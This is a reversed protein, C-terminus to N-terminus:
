GFVICAIQTPAAVAATMVITASGAGVTVGRLVAGSTDIQQPTCVVASTATIFSNTVNVTTQGAAINVIFSPKNVTTDGTPFPSTNKDFDIRGSFFSPSKALSYIFYRNAAGADISTDAYIAYSNTIGGPYIWNEFALGYANTITHGTRMLYQGRLLYTSPVTATGGLSSTITFDGAIGTQTIGGNHTVGVVSRIGRLLSTGTGASGSGITAAFEGATGSSIQREVNLSVTSGTMANSGGSDTNNAISIIQGYYTNGTGTGEAFLRIYNGILVKGVAGTQRWKVDTNNVILHDPWEYFQPSGINLITKATPFVPPLSESGITMGSTTSPCPVAAIGGGPRIEIRSQQGVGSCPRYLRFATRTQASITVAVCAICGILVIFRKMILKM